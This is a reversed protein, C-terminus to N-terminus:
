TKETKDFFFFSFNREIRKGLLATSLAAFPHIFSFLLYASQLGISPMHIYKNFLAQRQLSFSICM